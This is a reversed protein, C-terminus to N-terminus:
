HQRPLARAPHRSVGACWMAPAHMAETFELCKAKLSLRQAPVAESSRQQRLLTEVMQAARPAQESGKRESADSVGRKRERSSPRV